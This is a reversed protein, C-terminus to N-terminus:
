SSWHIGTGLVMGSVCYTSLLYKIYLPIFVFIFSNIFFQSDIKWASVWRPGYFARICLLKVREPWTEAALNRHYQTTTLPPSTSDKFESQGEAWGFLQSCARKPLFPVDFSAFCSGRIRVEAWLSTQLCCAQRCGEGDISLHGPLAKCTNNFSM